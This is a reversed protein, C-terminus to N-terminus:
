KKIDSIKLSYKETVNRDKYIFDTAKAAMNENNLFTKLKEFILKKTICETTKTTTCSIKNENFVIDKDAIDNESMYNIISTHLKEKKSKIYKMKEKLQNEQNNYELFQTIHTKFDNKSNM